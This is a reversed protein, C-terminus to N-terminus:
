GRGGDKGYAVLLARQARRRVEPDDWSVGLETVFVEFARALRRGEERAVVSARDAELGLKALTTALRAARDREAGELEALARVYESVRFTQGDVTAALQDGVLGGAGGERQVQEALQAGLWEARQEALRLLRPLAVAPDASGADGPSHAVSAATPFAGPTAPVTAGDPRELENM